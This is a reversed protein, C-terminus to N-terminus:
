SDDPEDEEDVIGMLELNLSIYKKGKRGFDITYKKLLGRSEIKEIKGRGFTEHEIMVGEQFRLTPDSKEDSIAARWGHDFQYSDIKTAPNQIPHIRASADDFAWEVVYLWYKEGLHQAEQFQKSSLSVGVANWEGSTAKVEIYRDIGEEGIRRSLIDYGPHTQPMEQPNRGRDKEYACVRERSANEVDLRYEIDIKAPEEGEEIKQKVYSILKKNLAKREKDRKPRNTPSKRTGAVKEESSTRKHPTKSTTSGSVKPETPTSGAGAEKHGPRETTTVSTKASQQDSQIKTTSVTDVHDDEGEADEEVEGIEGIESSRLDIEENNTRTSGLEPIGLDKLYSPAETVDMKMVGDFLAALPMIAPTPEDPMLSLLIEKFISLLYNRGLPRELLLKSAAEDLFVTTTAEKQLVAQDLGSVTTEVKISDYSVLVINQVLNCFIKRVEKSKDHLLREFLDIRELMDQQEPELKEEAGKTGTLSRTTNRSLREVGLSEFFAWLSPDPKCLFQALQESPFVEKIWESDDLLINSSYQPAYEVNMISPATTLRERDQDTLELSAQSIQVMCRNYLESDETSLQSRAIFHKEVIDIVFDIYDKAEPQDKVGLSKFLDRYKQYNDPVLYAYSGLNPQTFYVQNPRVYKQLDALYICREGKLVALWGPPEEKGKIRADLEQYVMQDVAIKHEICHVLHDVVLNSKPSRKISLENLLDTNLKQNNKLDLINAQSFFAKERFHAYLQEPAFWRSDQGTAPLCLPTRLRDIASRFGLDSGNRKFDECLRYFAAGINHKAKDDPRSASSVALIRDVLHDPSPLRLLGLQAIFHVVTKESPLRQQDVWLSRDDGLISCLEESRFYLADAPSWGGDFRPVLSTEELISRTKDDDLLQPHRALVLLLCKYQDIDQPGDGKFFQPVVKQVYEELNQRKVGLKREIFEFASSEPCFLAADLLKAQGIPDDFDGPLLADDLTSLGDGTKWIPLTKLCAYAEVDDEKQEEDIHGILTYLKSLREDNELIEAGKNDVRNLLEKLENAVRGINFKNILDFLGAYPELRSNAFSLWPFSASLVDSTVRGPGRYCDNISAAQLDNDLIFSLKKLEDIVKNDTESKSKPLLDDVLQWLPTFFRNLNKYHKNNNKAPVHIGSTKAIAVFNALTLSKVNLEKAAPQHPKLSSALLEGGIQHFVAVQEKPLSKISLVLSSLPKYEGKESFGIKAGKDAVDRFSRWFYRLCNVTRFNRTADYAASLLGWLQEPGFEDRLRELDSALGKAATKILSENWQQQYQDGTFIIAKRNSEPFFDANLHLPLNTAQQTPLFAYLLGDELPRPEVRIAVSIQTTRGQKELQQHKRYLPRLAAAADYRLLLWQEPPCHSGFSVILNDNTGRDVEITLFTKGNRKLEAKKIHRLFLLNSRLAAECAKQCKKKLDDTIHSLFLADRVQSNPDTAWRLNFRTGSENPHEDITCRKKVPDLTVRIGASAIEPSDCIQYTSVFGIGFRGINEPDSSKGGSAVHRIRHFDCDTGKRKQYPCSEDELDGCYSFVGSNWVRLENHRFDIFIQEAKADDANQILEHFMTDYGQLGSLHTRINGLVSATYSVQQSV